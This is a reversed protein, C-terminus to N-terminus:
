IFGAIMYVIHSSLISSEYPDMGMYDWSINKNVGRVNILIFVTNWISKHQEEREKELVTRLKRITM